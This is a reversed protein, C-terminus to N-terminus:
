PLITIKTMRLIIKKDKYNLITVYYDQLRAWRTLFNVKHVDVAKKKKKMKPGWHLDHLSNHISKFTAPPKVSAEDM